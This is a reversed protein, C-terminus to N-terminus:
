STKKQRFKQLARFALNHRACEKAIMYMKARELKEKGSRINITGFKWRHFSIKDRNKNYPNIKSLIFNEEEEYSKQPIVPKKTIRSRAM